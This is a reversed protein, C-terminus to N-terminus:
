SALSRPEILITMGALRDVEGSDHSVYLIPVHLEDRIREITRLVEERREEDLSVLPEDMLLFRAGSLLTRGIAVRRAEGGSLNAPWRQLLPELGLFAILEDEGIMPSEVLRRRGYRLNAGVRMHPFLRGDQFIYGAQRRHVAVNTQDDFLTRGGVTIRGRDPRVLGAIMNLVTSKGSGSRGILATIGAKSAFKATLLVDGFRREVDVDFFM